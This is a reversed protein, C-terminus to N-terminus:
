ESTNEIIFVPTLRCTNRPLVGGLFITEFPGSNPPPLDSQSQPIGPDDFVNHPSANDGYLEARYSLRGVWAKEDGIKVSIGSHLFLIPIIYDEEFFCLDGGQRFIKARLKVLAGTLKHGDNKIRALTVDMIKEYENNENKSEAPIAAGNTPAPRCSCLGTATCFCVFCSAITRKM